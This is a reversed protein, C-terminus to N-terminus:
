SKHLLAGSKMRDIGEDARMRKYHSPGQMKPTTKDHYRPTPDIHTMIEPIWDYTGLNENKNKNAM